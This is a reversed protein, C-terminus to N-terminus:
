HIPGANSPVIEVAQEKTIGFYAAQEGIRDCYAAESAPRQPM